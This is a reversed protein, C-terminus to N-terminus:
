KNEEKKYSLCVNRALCYECARQEEVFYFMCEDQLIDGCLSIDDEQVEAKEKDGVKVFRQTFVHYRDSKIEANAPTFGIIRGRYLENSRVFAVLDGVLVKNGFYDLRDAM